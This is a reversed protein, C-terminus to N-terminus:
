FTVMTFLGVLMGLSTLNCHLVYANLAGFGIEAKRLRDGIEVFAMEVKWPQVLV